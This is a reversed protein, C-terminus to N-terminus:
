HRDSPISRTVALWHYTAALKVAHIYFYLVNQRSRLKVQRDVLEVVELDERPVLLGVPVPPVRYVSITFSM